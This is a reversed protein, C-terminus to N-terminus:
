GFLDRIFGNAFTGKPDLEKRIEDFREWMPYQKRAEERNLTLRKGWHPRGGLQKMEREFRDFFPRAFGEGFTYAGVYCVDRGYAPSLMAEDAAVFRVEVPFNVHFDNEEIIWRTLRVAEAAREVPVAYECESHEPPMPINLARYYPAVLEEKTWGVRAMFRNVDDVVDIRADLGPLQYLDYGTEVLLEMLERKVVVNTFWEKYRNRPTPPRQTRNITAVQIVDTYPLWYLRVGDNSDVLGDVQDLVEEFPLPQANRELNYYPVCQITVRTIVGLAGLNVRAAAMLEPDADESITLPQGEETVLEMEVVQTHLGGFKIGTGHTATSIAGAISQEGISGLNRMALGHKPLIHNLEKIRIGAQVTVRQQEADVSVVHDLKDLNILTDDTIVLPSWSHGAGVVRVTRGGASAERVIEGLEEVSAPRYFRDPRCELSGDWNRFRHGTEPRLMAGEALREFGMEIKGL